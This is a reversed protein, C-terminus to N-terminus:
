KEEIRNNAGNIGGRQMSKGESHSRNSALSDELEAVCSSRYSCQSAKKMVINM